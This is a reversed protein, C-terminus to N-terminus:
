TWETIWRRTEFRRGRCSGLSKGPRRPEMDTDGALAAGEDEARTGTICSRVRLLVAEPCPGLAVARLM